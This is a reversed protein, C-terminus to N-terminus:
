ADVDWAARDLVMLRSAGRDPLPHQAVRDPPLEYDFRDLQMDALAPVVNM